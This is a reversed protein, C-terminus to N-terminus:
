TEWRICSIMAIESRTVTRRSPSFAPVTAVASVVMFPIISIITPRWTILAGLVFDLTGGSAGTTRRASERVEGSTLPTEKSSLAPSIRPRAPRTPAPLVSSMRITAPASRAEEPLTSTRPRVREKRWGWSAMLAPM